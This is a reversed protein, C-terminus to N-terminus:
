QLAKMSLYLSLLKRAITESKWRGLAEERAREGMKRRLNHDNVLILLKDAIDKQDSPNTLLGTDYNRVVFPIGGVNSALVPTGTAFAELISMPMNEQFSTLVVISATSYIRPMEEYPVKGLFEVPLDNCKIYERLKSEYTSDGSGVLKIKYEGLEKKVLAVAKLFGLQNKLPLLTAPYVIIPEENKRVNFFDDNIPNEIVEAKSIDLGKKQLEEVMYQSIAVFRALKSYYGRLRLEGLNLWIKPYIGKKFRIERWFIGHLTLIVPLKSLFYPFVECIDHSHVLDFGKRMTILGQIERPLWFAHIRKQAVVEINEDIVRSGSGDNISLFTIKVENRELERSIKLFGALTNYAAVSPGLYPRTVSPAIVLIKM